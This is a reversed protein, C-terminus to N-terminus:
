NLDQNDLILRYCCSSDLAYHEGTSPLQTNRTPLTDSRFTDSWCLQVDLSPVQNHENVMMLDHMLDCLSRM